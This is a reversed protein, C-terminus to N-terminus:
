AARRSRGSAGLSRPNRGNRAELEALALRPAPLRSARAMCAAALDILAQREAARDGAASAAGLARVRVPLPASGWEEDLELQLRLEDLASAVQRRM